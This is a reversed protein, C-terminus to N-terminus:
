LLFPTKSLTELSCVALAWIPNYFSSVMQALYNMQSFCALTLSNSCLM